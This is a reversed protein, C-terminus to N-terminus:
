YSQYVALENEVLWDNVNVWDTAQVWVEGLLRGYKGTQDKFTELCIPKDALFEKLRDRSVKGAETNLEPANIRRLRIKVGKQWVSLGLDVDVTITDADYVKTVQAQYIYFSNLDLKLKQTTMETSISHMCALLYKDNKLQNVM